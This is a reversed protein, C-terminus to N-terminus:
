TADVEVGGEDVTWGLLSRLGIDRTELASADAGRFVLPAAGEASLRRMRADSRLASTTSDSM